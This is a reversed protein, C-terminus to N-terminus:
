APPTNGAERKMWRRRNRHRLTTQCLRTKKEQKLTDVHEWNKRDESKFTVLGLTRTVSYTQTLSRPATRGHWLTTRYPRPKKEQKLSSAHEWSREEDEQTETGGHPEACAHKKDQKLSDVHEWIREEDMKKSKQAASPINTGSFRVSPLHRTLSKEGQGLHLLHSWVPLNHRWRLTHMTLTLCGSGVGRGNVSSIRCDSIIAPLILERAVSANFFSTKVVILFSSIPRTAFFSGIITMIPLLAIFRPIPFM